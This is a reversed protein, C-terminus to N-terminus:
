LELEFPMAKLCFWHLGRAMNQWLQFYVTISQEVKERHGKVFEATCNDSKEM